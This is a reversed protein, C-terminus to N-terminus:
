LAAALHKALFLFHNSVEFPVLLSVLAQLVAEHAVRGRVVATITEGVTRMVAFLCVVVAKLYGRAM